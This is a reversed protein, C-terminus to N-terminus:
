YGPVNHQSSAGHASSLEVPLPCTVHQGAHQMPVLGILWLDRM